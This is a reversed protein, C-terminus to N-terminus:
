SMALVFEKKAKLRLAVTNAEDDGENFDPEEEWAIGVVVGVVVVVVVVVLEVAVVVVVEVVLGVTVGMDNLSMEVIGMLRLPSEAGWCGTM